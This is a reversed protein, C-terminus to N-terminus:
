TTCADTCQNQTTLSHCHYKEHYFPSPLAGSLFIEKIRKEVISLFVLNLVQIWDLCHIHKQQYQKQQSGCISMESTSHTLGKNFFRKM